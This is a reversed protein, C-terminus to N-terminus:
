SCRDQPQLNSFRTYEKEFRTRVTGIPGNRNKGIILEAIGKDETDEHYFEDRYVFVIVDPDQELSGSERLDSMIPRKDPRRELSRNLQSLAVVPVKLEKAVQKLGRSISAIQQERNLSVDADMLQLYDVVILSLSGHESKIQRSIRRVDWVTIGGRDSGEDSFHIPLEAIEVAAQTLRHIGQPQIHGTMLRRGNVRSMWSLMRYMAQEKTGECLFYPVAGKGSAAAEIAMGMALSSKGQSPRGAVIILDAPQLGLTMGDVEELGTPTGTISGIEDKNNYKNEIDKFIDKVLTKTDVVDSTNRADRIDLIRKESGDLFAEVDEVYYSDEITRRSAEVTARIDAKNRVIEAYYKLNHATPIHDILDNLYVMWSEPKGKFIKNEIGYDYVTIM